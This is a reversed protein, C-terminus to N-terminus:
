LGNRSFKCSSRGDIKRKNAPNVLNQHAIFNSWKDALKGKPIKSDLKTM